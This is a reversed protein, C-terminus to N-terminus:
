VTAVVLQPNAVVLVPVVIVITAGIIIPDICDLEPVTQVPLVNLKLLAVVPPTHVDALGEFAVTFAVDPSTVPKLAPEVIIVYVTVTLPQLM